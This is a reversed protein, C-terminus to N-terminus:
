GFGIPARKVAPETKIQEAQRGFRLCHLGEDVVRAGVGVFPEDVRQQARGVEAFAPAAM